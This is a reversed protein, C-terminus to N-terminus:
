AIQLKGRSRLFLAPIDERLSLQPPRDLSANHVKQALEIRVLGSLLEYNDQFM